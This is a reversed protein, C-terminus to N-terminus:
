TINFISEGHRRTIGRASLLLDPICLNNSYALIVFINMIFDDDSISLLYINGTDIDDDKLTYIENSISM